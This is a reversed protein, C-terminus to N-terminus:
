RAHKEEATRDRADWIAAREYSWLHRYVGMLYMFKVWGKCGDTLKCPSRRDILSYDPDVKAALAQLDIDRHEKCTWCIARVHCAPEAAM